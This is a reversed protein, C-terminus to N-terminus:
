SDISNGTNSSAHPDRKASVFLNATSNVIRSVQDYLGDFVIPWDVSHCGREASHGVPDDRLLGRCFKLVVQKPRM